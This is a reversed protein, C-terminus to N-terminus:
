RQVENREELRKRLAEPLQQAAGPAARSFYGSAPREPIVRLKRLRTERFTRGPAWIREKSVQALEALPEAPEAPAPALGGSAAPPVELSRRGLGRHGKAGHCLSVGLIMLGFSPMMPLVLPVIERLFGDSLDNLLLPFFYEPEAQSNGTTRNACAKLVVHQPWGCLPSTSDRINLLVWLYQENKSNSLPDHENIFNIGTRLEDGSPNWSSKDSDGDARSPKVQKPKLVQATWQEGSVDSLVYLFCKRVTDTQAINYDIVLIHNDCLTKALGIPINVKSHYFKLVSCSGDARHHLTIQLRIADGLADKPRVSIPLDPLRPTSRSAVAASMASRIAAQDEASVNHVIQFFEKFSKKSGSPPSVLPLDSFTFKGDKVELQQLSDTYVVFMSGVEAMVVDMIVM